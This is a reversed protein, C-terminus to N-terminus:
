FMMGLQSPTSINSVRPSLIFPTYVYEKYMKKEEIFYDQWRLAQKHFIWSVIFYM